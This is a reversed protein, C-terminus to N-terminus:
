LRLERGAMGREGLWRVSVEGGDLGTVTLEQEDGPMLDLANDSWRVDDGTSLAV